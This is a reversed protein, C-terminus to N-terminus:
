IYTHMQLLLKCLFEQVCCLDNCKIQCKMYVDKKVNNERNCM